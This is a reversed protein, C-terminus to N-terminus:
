QNLELALDMTGLELFCRLQCWGDFNGSGEYEPYAVHEFPSFHMGEILRDFLKYDEDLERLGNQSLYSVRACRAVSLKMKNSDSLHEEDPLIYPTHWEDYCMYEPTSENIAKEICDALEGMEPQAMGHKSLRQKFFNDWETSSIIATHYLFPELLRNATQKHVNLSLLKEAHEVASDRAELWISQVELLADGGFYISAQMGSQNFGVQEPIFPQNRVKELMKKVPIARSSASNRSFARHTNVEALICRPFTAEITTLREDQPSISDLVIRASILSM